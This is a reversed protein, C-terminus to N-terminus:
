DSSIGHKNIGLLSMTTLRHRLLMTDFGYNNVFTTEVINSWNREMPLKVPTIKAIKKKLNKEENRSFLKERILHKSIKRSHFSEIKKKPM